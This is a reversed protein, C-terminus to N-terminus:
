EDNGGDPNAAWPRQEQGAMGFGAFRGLGVDGFFEKPSQLRKEKTWILLQDWPMAQHFMMMPPRDGVPTLRWAPDENLRELLDKFYPEHDVSTILFGGRIAVAKMMDRWRFYFDEHQDKTMSRLGTLDKKVRKRKGM